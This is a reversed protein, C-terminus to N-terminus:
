RYLEKMYSYSRRKMRNLHPRELDSNRIRIVDAAPGATEFGIRRAEKVIKAADDPNDFIYLRAEGSWIDKYGIYGANILLDSALERTMYRDRLERTAIVVGHRFRPKFERGM